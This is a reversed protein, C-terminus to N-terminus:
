FHNVRLRFSNITVPAHSHRRKEIKKVEFEEDSPYYYLAKM